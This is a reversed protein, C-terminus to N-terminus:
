RAMQGKALAEGAQIRLGSWFIARRSYKLLRGGEILLLEIVVGFRHAIELPAPQMIESQNAFELNAVCGASTQATMQCCLAIGEVQQPM